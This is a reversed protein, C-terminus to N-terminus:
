LAAEAKELKPLSILFISGEGMESSVTITGGHQEIIRRVLSLGLGTGKSGKTTYFSEWIRELQAPAIGTGNDAVSINLSEDPQRCASIKICGGSRRSQLVADLANVVLNSLTSLMAKRDVTHMGLESDSVLNLQVNNREAQDQHITVVEQLLEEVDCPIMLPEQAGSYSLLDQMFGAIRGTIDKLVSLLRPYRDVENTKLADEMLFTSASLGGALNKITHSIDSIAQGVAALRDSQMRERILEINDCVLSLQRGVTTLLSIQDSPWNRLGRACVLLIARLSKRTTVPLIIASSFGESRLVQAQANTSDAISDMIVSRDLEVREGLLEAKELVAGLNDVFSEPLGRHSRLVFCGTASDFTYFGLRNAPLADAIMAVIENACTDLDAATALLATLRNLTTLERNRQIIYAQREELAVSMENFSRALEGVEDESFHGSLLRFNGLALDHTAQSLQRLPWSVKRTVMLSFVLAMGLSVGVLTFIQGLVNIRDQARRERESLLTEDNQQLYLDLYTFLRNVLEVNNELAMRRWEEDRGLLRLDMEEQFLQGLKTHTDSVQALLQQAFATSNSDLEQAVPTQHAEKLLTDVQNKWYYVPERMRFDGFAFYARLSSLEEGFAIRIQRVLDRREHLQLDIATWRDSAKMLSLIILVQTATSISLILVIGILLKGRIGFRFWGAFWSPRKM